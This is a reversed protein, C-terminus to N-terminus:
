DSPTQPAAAHRVHVRRLEHLDNEFRGHEDLNRERDDKQRTELAIIRSTLKLLQVYIAVLVGLNAYPIISSLARSEPM